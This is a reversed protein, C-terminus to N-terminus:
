FAKTFAAQIQEADNLFDKTEDFFIKKSILQSIPYNEVSKALSALNALNQSAEEEGIHRNLSNASKLWVKSHGSISIDTTNPSFWMTESTITVFTSSSDKVSGGIESLALFRFAKNWSSSNQDRTALKVSGFLYFKELKFNQIWEQAHDLISISLKTSEEFFTIESTYDIIEFPSYEKTKKGTRIAQSILELYQYEQSDPQAALTIYVKERSRKGCLISLPLELAYGALFWHKGKPEGIGVGCLAIPTFFSSEFLPKLIKVGLGPSEFRLDVGLYSGM